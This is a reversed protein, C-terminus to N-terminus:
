LYVRYSISRSIGWFFVVVLKGLLVTTTHQYREIDDNNKGSLRHDTLCAAMISGYDLVQATDMIRLCM